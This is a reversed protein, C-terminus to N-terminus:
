FCYQQGDGGTVVRGRGVDRWDCDHRWSLRWRTGAVAVCSASGDEHLEVRLGDDNCHLVRDLEGSQAFAVLVDVHLPRWGPLLDELDLLAKAGADGLVWGLKGQERLELFREGAPTAFWDILGDVALAHAREGADTVAWKVVDSGLDARLDERGWWAGAAFALSLTVAAVGAAWTFALWRGRAAAARTAQVAEGALEQVQGVVADRAAEVMSAVTQDAAAEVREKAETELDALLARCRDGFREATGDAERWFRAWYHGQALFLRFIPDDRELGCEERLRRLVEREAEGGAQALLEDFPPRNARAPDGPM